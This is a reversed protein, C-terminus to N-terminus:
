GEDSKENIAEETEINVEPTKLHRKTFEDADRNPTEGEGSEAKRVLDDGDIHSTDTRPAKDDDQYDDAEAPLTKDSM